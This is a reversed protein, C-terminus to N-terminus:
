GYVYMENMIDSLKGLDKNIYLMYKHIYYNRVMMDMGGLAENQFNNCSTGPNVVISVTVPSVM